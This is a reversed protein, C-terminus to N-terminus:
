YFVVKQFFLSNLQSFVVFGSNVWPVDLLNRYVESCDIGTGIVSTEGAVLSKRRGSLSKNLFVECVSLSAPTGRGHM